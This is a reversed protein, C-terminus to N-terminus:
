RPLKVWEVFRRETCLKIVNKSQKKIETYIVTEHKSLALKKIYKKIQQITIQDQNNHKRSKSDSLNNQTTLKNTEM